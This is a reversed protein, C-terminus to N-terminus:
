APMIGSKFPVSGIMSIGLPSIIGAPSIDVRLEATLSDRFATLPDICAMLEPSVTPSKGGTAALAVNEAMCGLEVGKPAKPTMGTLVELEMSSVAGSHFM